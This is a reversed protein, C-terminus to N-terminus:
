KNPFIVEPYDRFFERFHREDDKFACFLELEDGHEDLLAGMAIYQSLASKLNFKDGYISMLWVDNECKNVAEKFAEVQKVNTLKM